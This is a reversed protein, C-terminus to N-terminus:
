AGKVAIRKLQQRPDAAFHLQFNNPPPLRVIMRRQCAQACCGPGSAAAAYRTTACEGDFALYDGRRRVAHHVRATENLEEDHKPTPIVLSTLSCFM